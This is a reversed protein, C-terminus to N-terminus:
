HSDSIIHTYSSVLPAGLIGWCGVNLGMSNILYRLLSQLALAQYKSLSPYASAVLFTGPLSPPWFLGQLVEVTSLISQPTKFARGRCYESVMESQVEDHSPVM